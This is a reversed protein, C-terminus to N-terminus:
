ITTRTGKEEVIKRIDHCVSGMLSPMDRSNGVEYQITNIGYLDSPFKLDTKRQCLMLTRSRSLRGIFLGLELLINDRPISQESDRSKVIDDATLLLVGFDSEELQTELDEIPFNSAKFVGDTWIKVIMEDHELGKQIERAIYLAEVSCGIFIRPIDNSTRVLHNRQRLRSAIEVAINRWLFSHVSAIETFDSEIVKAVVVKGKSRVTASRPESPDIMAMAGVHQSSCREAVINNKVEISVRGVLIFLIFNDSEGNKILIENDEYELLEVVKSLEEAVQQNGQIARQKCLERIVLKKGDNGQFRNIMM